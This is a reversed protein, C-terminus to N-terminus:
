GVLMAREVLAEGALLIEEAIAELFVARSEFSSNKYQDFATQAKGAAKEIEETTAIFFEEPLDDRQVPSFVKLKNHNEASTFYGLFNHGSFM